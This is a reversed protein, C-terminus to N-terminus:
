FGRGVLAGGDVILTQGTIWSAADSMLFLAANAVDEPEGLRKMPLHDAVLQENAEWLEKSFDTKIIGPLLANVRVAPALEAALHRTMHIVAAKTVNYWALNTEVSVGGISSVNLVSGGGDEGLGAKMAEQTWVLYGTQNVKTTKEAAGVDIGMLPGYYPNAAANNVLVDIRGFRELCAEVCAAAQDPEGANAAFVDVEGSMTAAAAELGAQKRSSLLVKAGAAACTAAIARGIGKSAGTVLVVKGDMRLEMARISRRGDWGPTVM